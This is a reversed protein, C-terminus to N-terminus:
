KSFKFSSVLCFLKIIINLHLIQLENLTDIYDIMKLILMLAACLFSVESSGSLTQNRASSTLAFSLHKLGKSNASAPPAPSSTGVMNQPSENELFKHIENLTVTEVKIVAASSSNVNQPAEGDAKLLGGLTKSNLTTLLIVSPKTESENWRSRFTAAIKDWLYVRATEGDELQVHLFVMDKSREGAPAPATAMPTQTDLNDGNIVRLFGIIDLLDTHKDVIDTFVKLERIRFHQSDIQYDGEHVPDFTHHSETYQNPLDSVSSTSSKFESMEDMVDPAQRIVLKLAEKDLILLVSKLVYIQMKAQSIDNLNSISDVVIVDVSGCKTLVDVISLMNEASDPLSILLEETVRNDNPYEDLECDSAGTCIGDASSIYLDLPERVTAHEEVSMRIIEFEIPSKTM